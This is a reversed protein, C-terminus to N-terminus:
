DQVPVSSVLSSTTLLYLNAEVEERARLLEGRKGRYEQELGRRAEGEMREQYAAAEQWHVQELRRREEQTLLPHAPAPPSSPFSLSSCWGAGRM